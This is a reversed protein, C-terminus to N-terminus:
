NVGAIGLIINKLKAFDQSMAQKLTDEQLDGDRFKAAIDHHYFFSDWHKYSYYNLLGFLSCHTTARKGRYLGKKELEVMIRQPNM